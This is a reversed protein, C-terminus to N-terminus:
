SGPAFAVMVFVFFRTPMPWRQHAEGAEDARARRAYARRGEAVGRGLGRGDLAFGAVPRRSSTVQPRAGGRGDVAARPVLRLRISSARGRRESASAATAVGRLRVAYRRGCHPCRFSWRYLSAAGWFLVPLWLARVALAEECRRAV